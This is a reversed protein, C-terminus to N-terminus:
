ESERGEEKEEKADSAASSPKKAQSLYVSLHLGTTSFPFLHPLQPLTHTLGGKDIPPAGGRPCVLEKEKGNEEKLM